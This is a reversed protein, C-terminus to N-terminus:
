AVMRPSPVPSEVQLKVPVEISFEAGGAPKNEVRVTGQLQQAFERVIFLGLGVGALSAESATPSAQRFMEFIHPIEDPPIGPGTDSVVLELSRNGRNRRVTVRVCGRKTFKLANGILNKAIVKLKTPDTYMRVAEAPLDWQIQVSPTRPLWRVESQVQEFLLGVDFQMPKIVTKGAELRHADLTGEILDTLTMENQELRRLIQLLEPDGERELIDGLMETYGMIVHLPTRLEHSMTALFESKMASARRLEDFLRSNALAITAHQGIGRLLRVTRKRPRRFGALIAGIRENRHRLPVLFVEDGPDRRLLHGAGRHWDEVPIAESSERELELFPLEAARLDVAKLNDLSTGFRGCGGTIRHSEEDFERQVLLVWEAGTADRTLHAIRDEIGDDGLSRNLDRAFEELARTLSAAQDSRLAERWIARRHLDLYRNGQIAIIGGAFVGFLALTIDLGSEGKVLVLASFGLCSAAVLIAQSTVSWWTLLSVGTMLCIAAYGAVMTATPALVSYVYILTIVAIWSALTVPEFLRRRVLPRRALLPLAIIAFELVYFGVWLGIREPRYLWEVIGTSGIALLFLASAIPIRQANIAISEGEYSAELAATM